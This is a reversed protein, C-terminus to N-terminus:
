NFDKTNHGKPLYFHFSKSDKLVKIDHYGIKNNIYSISPASYYNTKKLSLKNCYINEKILGKYLFMICGYKAHNHINTQVRKKWNIKYIDIIPFPYKIKHYTRHNIIKFFM